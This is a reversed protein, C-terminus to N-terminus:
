ERAGSLSEHRTHHSKALDRWQDTSASHGRSKQTSKADVTSKTDVTGPRVQTPSGFSCVDQPDTCTSSGRSGPRAPSCPSPTLLLSTSLSTSVGLPNTYHLTKHLYLLTQTRSIKAGGKEAGLISRAISAQGRLSSPLAPLLLSPPTVLRALLACFLSVRAIPARM